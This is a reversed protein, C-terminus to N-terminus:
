VLIEAASAMVTASTFRVGTIADAGMAEASEIMRDLAQERSEAMMKTYELVEGGVVSRFAAMIDKMVPLALVNNREELKVVEDQEALTDDGRASSITVIWRQGSVDSLVKGPGLIPLAFQVMQVHNNRIIKLNRWTPAMTPMTATNCCM